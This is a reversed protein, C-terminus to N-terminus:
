GPYPHLWAERTKRRGGPTRGVLAERASILAGARRGCGGSRQGHTEHDTPRLRAQKISRDAHRTSGRVQSQCMLHERRVTRERNGDDHTGDHPRWVRPIHKIVERGRDRPGQRHEHDCRTLGRLWSCRPANKWAQLMLGTFNYLQVRVVTSLLILLLDKGRGLLIEPLDSCVNRRHHM